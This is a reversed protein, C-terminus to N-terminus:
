EFFYLWWKLPNSSKILQEEPNTPAPPDVPKSDPKKTIVIVKEEPKKLGLQSRASEEKYTNTNLYDILHTLESNSKELEQIKENLNITEKKIQIRQHIIKYLGFSVLVLGFLGAILFLKSNLIKLIRSKKSSHYM